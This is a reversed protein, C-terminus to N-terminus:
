YFHKDGIGIVGLDSESLLGVDPGQFHWMWFPLLPGMNNFSVVEEQDNVNGKWNLRCTSCLFRGRSVPHSWLLLLLDGSWNKGCGRFTLRQRWKSLLVFNQNRLRIEELGWIRKSIIKVAHWEGLQHFFLNFQFYFATKQFWTKRWGDCDWTSPRWPQKESQCVHGHPRLCPFAFKLSPKCCGRALPM